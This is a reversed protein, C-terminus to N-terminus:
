AGEISPQHPGHSREAMFQRFEIENAEYVALTLCIAESRHLRPFLAPNDTAAKELARRHLEAEIIQESLTIKM